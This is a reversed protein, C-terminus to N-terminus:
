TSYKQYFRTLYNLVVAKIKQGEGGSIFMAEFSIHKLRDFMMFVTDQSVGASTHRYTNLYSFLPLKHMYSASGTVDWVKDHKVGKANFRGGSFVSKQNLRKTDEKTLGGDKWILGQLHPAILYGDEFDVGNFFEKTFIAFEITGIYNYGRLGDQFKKKIADFTVDVSDGGNRLLDAEKKFKVSSTELARDIVTFASMGELPIRYAELARLTAEQCPVIRWPNMFMLERWNKKAILKKDLASVLGAKQWKPKSMIKKLEASQKKVLELAYEARTCKRTNFRTDQKISAIHNYFIDVYRNHNNLNESRIKVDM